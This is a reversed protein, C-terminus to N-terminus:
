LQKAPHCPVYKFIFYLPVNSTSLLIDLFMFLFRIPFHIPPLLQYSRVFSLGHSVVSPPFLDWFASTCAQTTPLVTSRILYSVWHLVHPFFASSLFVQLAARWATPQVILGLTTSIFKYQLRRVFIMYSLSFILSNFWSVVVIPCYTAPAHLTYSFSDCALCGVSDDVFTPLRISSRTSISLTSVM